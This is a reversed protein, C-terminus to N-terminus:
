GRMVPSLVMTLAGLLNRDITQLALKRAAIAAAANNRCCSRSIAVATQNKSASSTPLLRQRLRQLVDSAKTPKSYVPICLAIFSYKHAARCAVDLSIKAAGDASSIARFCFRLLGCGELVFGFCGFWGLM